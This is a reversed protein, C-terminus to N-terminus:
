LAPVGTKCSAAAKKFQKNFSSRDSLNTKASMQTRVPLICVVNARQQWTVHSM